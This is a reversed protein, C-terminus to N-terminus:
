YRKNESREALMTRDGYSARLRKILRFDQIMLTKRKAHVSLLQMDEFLQIMYAESSVKLAELAAAQIKFFREDNHLNLAVDTLIDKVIRAFAALPILYEENDKLRRLRSLVHLQKPTKKVPTSQKRSRDKKRITKRAMPRVM